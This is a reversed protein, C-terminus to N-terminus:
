CYVLYSTNYSYPNETIYINLKNVKQYGNIIFFKDDEEIFTWVRNSKLAEEFIKLSNKDEIINPDFDIFSNDDDVLPSFENELEDITLRQQVIKQNNLMDVYHKAYHEHGVPFVVIEKGSSDLVARNQKKGLRYM